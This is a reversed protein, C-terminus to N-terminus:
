ELGAAVRQLTSELIPLERNLHSLEQQLGMLEQDLKDRKLRAEKYKRAARELKTESRVGSM